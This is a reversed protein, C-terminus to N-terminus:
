QLVHYITLLYHSYIHYEIIKTYKSYIFLFAIIYLLYQFKMDNFLYYIFFLLMSIRDIYKFYNNTYKHNLISILNGFLIICRIDNDTIYYCKILHIILVNKSSNFLKINM